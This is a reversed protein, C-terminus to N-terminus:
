SVLVGKGQRHGVTSTYSRLRGAATSATEGPGTWSRDRPMHRLQPGTEEEEDERVLAAGATRGVRDSLPSEIRPCLCGVDVVHYAVLAALTRPTVDVFPVFTMWDHRLPKNFIVM